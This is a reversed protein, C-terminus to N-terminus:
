QAGPRAGPPNEPRNEYHRQAADFQGLSNLVSALDFHAQYLDADIRVAEEYHIKADGFRRNALLVNGLHLQAVSNDATCKLTRPWLTFDDRWYATQWATCAALALLMFAGAVSFAFRRNVSAGALDAVLWVLAVTPGIMPLYSYRDALAQYGVQVLGIVPVLM